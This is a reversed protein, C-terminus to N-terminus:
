KMYLFFDQLHKVKQNLKLHETTQIKDWSIHLTLFSFCSTSRPWHQKCRTFHDIFDTM